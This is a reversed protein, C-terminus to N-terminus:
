LKKIIKTTKLKTALETDEQLCPVKKHEYISIEM